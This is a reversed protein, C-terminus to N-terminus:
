LFLSSFSTNNQQEKQLKFNSVNNRLSIWEDTQEKFGVLIKDFTFFTVM